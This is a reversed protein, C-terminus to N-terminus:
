ETPQAAVPAAAEADPAHVPTRKGTNPDYVFSGSKGHHEDVPHLASPKHLDPEKQASTHM